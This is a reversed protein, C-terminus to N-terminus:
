GRRPRRNPPPPPRSCKGASEWSGVSDSSGGSPWRVTKKAFYPVVSLGSDALHPDAVRLADAGARPGDPLHARRPVPRIRPAGAPRRSGRLINAAAALSQWSDRGQVERLIDGQPVGNAALYNASATAETFRRRAGQWRDGGDIAGAEGAVPDPRPRAPGQSRTVADRQVPGSWYLSPRPRALKIRGPRGGSRSWPSASTASSSCQSRPWGRSDGPGVVPPAMPAASDVALPPTEARQRWGACVM